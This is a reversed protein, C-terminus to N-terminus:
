PVTLVFRSAKIAFYLLRELNSRDGGFAAQYSGCCGSFTATGGAKKAIVSIVLIM